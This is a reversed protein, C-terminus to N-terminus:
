VGYAVGVSTLIGCLKRLMPRTRTTNLTTLMRLSLTPSAKGITAVKVPGNKGYVKTSYFGKKIIEESAKKTAELDYSLIGLRLKKFVEEKSLM